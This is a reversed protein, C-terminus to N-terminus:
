GQTMRELRRPPEDDGEVHRRWKFGLAEDLFEPLQWHHELDAV